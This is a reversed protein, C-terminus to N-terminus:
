VLTNITDALGVFPNSITGSRVDITLVNSSKVDVDTFILSSISTM